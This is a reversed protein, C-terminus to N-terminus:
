PQKPSQVQGLQRRLQAAAKLAANKASRERSLQERLENAAREAAEKASDHESARQRVQEANREALEKAERARDLQERMERATREAAEKANQEEAIRQRAQEANREALEKAERVRDLQERMERATREAAEKANQEEAVRRRAQEANREALEKAERGRDLQENERPHEMTARMRDLEQRVERVLNEAASRAKQEEEMRKGAQEAAREATEKAMRERGLQELAVRQAREADETAKSDTNLREQAAREAHEEAGKAVTELMRERPGLTIHMSRAVVLSAVITALLGFVVAWRRMGRRDTVAPQVPQDGPHKGQWPDYTGFNWIHGEPDRCAYSRGGFDDNQVDFIIEAGSSRARACHADADSVLLYCSRTEAGGIEDPLKMYRNLATDASVLMLMASGFTLQAFHVVGTESTAVFHRQFGFATCLWDSAAAVDRYGLAVSLM